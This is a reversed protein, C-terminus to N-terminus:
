GKRRCRGHQRAGRGTRDRERHRGRLDMLHQLNGFGEDYPGQCGEIRASAEVLDMAMLRGLDKLTQEDYSQCKKCTRWDHEPQDTISKETEPALDHDVVAEWSIVVMSIDSQSAGSKDEAM